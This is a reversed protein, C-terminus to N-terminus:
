KPIKKLIYLTAYIHKRTNRCPRKCAVVYVRKCVCFDLTCFIGVNKESLICIDHLVNKFFDPSFCHQIRQISIVEM